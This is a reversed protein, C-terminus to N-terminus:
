RQHQLIRGRLIILYLLVFYYLYLEEMESAREFLFLDQFHNGVHDACNIFLAILATVSLIDPPYIAKFKQPLIAPKFRRALPMIIGGFLVGLELILRPKQDLWSSTNHLNTENQDNIGSWFEPTTWHVLHQGWSIEEGSVYFCCATSLLVWLGLWRQTKWDVSQLTFLAVFFGAATFIFEFAEHPGGESLLVSLTKEPVTIELAIQGALLVLPFWLWAFAPLQDSKSM